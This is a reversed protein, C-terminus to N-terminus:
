RPAEGPVWTLAAGVIGADNNLRAPV